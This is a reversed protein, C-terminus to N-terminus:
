IMDPITPEFNKKEKVLSLMNIILLPGKFLESKWFLLNSFNLPSITTLNGIKKFVSEKRFNLGLKEWM